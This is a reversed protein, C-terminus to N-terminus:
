RLFVKQSCIFILFFAKKMRNYCYAGDKSFTRILKSFHTLENFGHGVNNIKNQSEM